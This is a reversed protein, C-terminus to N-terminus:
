HPTESRLHEAIGVLQRELDAISERARSDGTLAGECQLAFSFRSGFVGSPPKITLTYILRPQYHLRLQWADVPWHAHLLYSGYPVALRIQALLTYEDTLLFFSNSEEFPCDYSTILLNGYVCRYQAEVVYGQLRAGTPVGNRLLPIRDPWQEYPGDHRAFSFEQIPEM